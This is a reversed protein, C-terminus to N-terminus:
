LFYDRKAQPTIIKRKQLNINLHTSFSSPFSECVLMCNSRKVDPFLSQKIPMSGPYNRSVCPIWDNIFQIPKYAGLCLTREEKHYIIDLCSNEFLYIYLFNFLLEM